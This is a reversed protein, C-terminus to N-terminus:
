PRRIPSDDPGVSDSLDSQHAVSGVATSGGERVTDMVLVQEPCVRVRSAQMWSTNPPVPRQPWNLASPPPFRSEESQTMNGRISVYAYHNVSRCSQWGACKFGRAQELDCPFRGDREFVAVDIRAWRVM